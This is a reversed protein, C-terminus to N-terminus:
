PAGVVEKLGGLVGALPAGAGRGGGSDDCLLPPLLRLLDSNGSIEAMM